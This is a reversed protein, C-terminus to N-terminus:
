EEQRGEEMQSYFKEKPFTKEKLYRQSFHFLKVRKAKALKAIKGAQYATLHNTELANKEEQHLFNSEIFLIDTQYALDVAKQINQPTYGFDTLYAYSSFPKLTFFQKQIEQLSLFGQGTNILTNLPEHKLLMKKAQGLWKGSSLGAKLVADLNVSLRDKEELRFGLVPIFHDLIQAKVCFFEEQLLLGKFPKEELKQPRFVNKSDFLTSTIKDSCVEHVKFQIDYSHVLNWVYAHLAGKFNETFGAPGFFDVCSGSNKLINRLFIAFGSFHDLHTHSIFVYRVRLIFSPKMKSIDGLDFLLDEKANFQKAYLVSDEYPPNIFFFNFHTHM